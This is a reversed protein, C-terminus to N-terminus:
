FVRRVTAKIELTVAAGVDEPLCRLVPDNAAKWRVLEKYTNIGHLANILKLGDAHDPVPPVDEGRPKASLVRTEGTKVNVLEISVKDVPSIKDVHM